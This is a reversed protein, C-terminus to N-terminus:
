LVPVYIEGAKHGGALVLKVVTYVLQGASIILSILIIANDTNFTTIDNLYTFTVYTGIITQPASEMISEWTSIFGGIDTISMRRYEQGSSRLQAITMDTPKAGSCFLYKMWIVWCHCSLGFVLIPAIFFLISAICDAIVVMVVTLKGGFAITCGIFPIYTVIAKAITIKGFLGDDSTLQDFYLGIIWLTQYRFSLYLVVILMWALYNPIEDNKFYQIIALIDTVIDVVALWQTVVNQYDLLPSICHYFRKCRKKCSECCKAEQEEQEVPEDNTSVVISQAEAM